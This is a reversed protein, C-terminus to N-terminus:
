FSADNLKWFADTNKLKENEKAYDLATKGSSDKAKPDAGLKLLATIVEPNANFAAATM